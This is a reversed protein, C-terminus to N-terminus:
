YVFGWCLSLVESMLSTSECRSLFVESSFLPVKKTFAASIKHKRVICREVTVFAVALAGDSKPLLEEPM